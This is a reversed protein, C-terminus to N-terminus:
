QAAVEVVNGITIPLIATSGSSSAEFANFVPPTFGSSFGINTFPPSGSRLHVDYHIAPSSNFIVANGVLAGYIQQSNSITLTNKPFDMVGYFPTNTGMELTGSSNWTSMILLREPSLSNNVIGGGDISMNGYAVHMELSVDPGGGIVPISNAPAISIQASGSISVNGYVLLIVPGKINLVSSNQLTLNGFIYYPTPVTATPSGLTMTQTGSLDVTIPIASSPFNETYQPQNPQTETIIRTPDISETPPTNPGIIGAGSSYSVPNSSVGVVYGDVVGTNLRVGPFSSTSGSLVVASYGANIAAPSGVMAGYAGLSSDYSDLTGGARFRVRGQTAGVANVFTPALSGTTELQRKIITGSPLTVFAESTFRPASTGYNTVTLAVSGTAGNEFTFGTLTATAIGGSTTWLAPNWDNNNQAYLAKELGAEALEVSHSSMLNRTSMTLSTYCIGIYSSLCLAFVMALCLAALMAAGRESKPISASHRVMM